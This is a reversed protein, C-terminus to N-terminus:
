PRIINQLFNLWHAWINYKVKRLWSLIKLVSYSYEGKHQVAFSTLCSTIVVHISEEHLDFLQHSVVLWKLEGWEDRPILPVSIQSWCIPKKVEFLGEFDTEIQLTKSSYVSLLFHHWSWNTSAMETTNENATESIELISYLYIFWILILYIWFIPSVVWFIAVEKSDWRM